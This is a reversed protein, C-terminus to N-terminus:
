HDFRTDAQLQLGASTHVPDYPRDLYEIQARLMRGQRFREASFATVDVSTAKGQTALEALAIGIAPSLKFGTGSFGAGLYLGEIGPAHDVVMKGDPTMTYCGAYGRRMGAQQMVPYRQAMQAAGLAQIDDDVSDRYTDPDVGDQGPGYGVLTMGMADPRFYLSGPAIYTLSAPIAAPRELIMIQHRSPVLPLDIGHRKLLPGSWPGATSIVIPAAIDGATTAVGQVKGHQVLLNSVAVGQRLTAGGRRAADMFAHATAYGDAYGSAPEYAAVEIDSTEVGADLRRLDDGSVLVTNIGVAQLRAVNQRLLATKDPTVLRVFGTQTFGCNGGVRDRWEQFWHWSALALRAEPMFTYHMRVLASSKGSSGAAVTSKELVVVRKVGRQVLQFATSTGMVGAGIIVVDATREMSTNRENMGQSIHERLTETPSHLPKKKQEGPLTRHLLTPPQLVALTRM